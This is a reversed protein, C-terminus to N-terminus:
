PKQTEFYVTYREDTVDHLPIFRFNHKQHVTRYGPLWEMWERENDPALITEPKNPDGVLATDADTLGALVVPGDLFAVREPEDPIPSCTLASPLDIHLTDREWTRHLRLFCGAAGAQVPEDNLRIQATGAVWGPIRLDLAFPAPRACEVVLDVSLRRPRHLEGAQKDLTLRLRVPVGDVECEM